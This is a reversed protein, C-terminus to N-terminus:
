KRCTWRHRGQLCTLATSESQHFRRTCSFSMQLLWSRSRPAPHLWKHHVHKKSDTGPNSAFWGRKFESGSIVHEGDHHGGDGRAGIVGVPDWPVGVLKNLMEKSVEREQRQILGTRVMVGDSLQMVVAENARFRMGLYLAEFWRESMVGVQVKGAVRMVVLNALRLIYGNFRKGKVRKFSTKGDQGGQVKNVSDFAHEMLWLIVKHTIKLTESVRAELDLKLTRVMGEVTRVAREICGNGQSHGVASDQSMTVADGRLRAVETVLSKFAAEQDCRIVLRRHHGLREVDRVVRQAIWEM